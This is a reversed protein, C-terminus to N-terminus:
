GDEKYDFTIAIEDVNGSKATTEVWVWSSSEITNDGLSTVATGSNVNAFALPASLLHNGSADRDKQHRVDFTVSPGSSGRLVAYVTSVTIPKSIHFWTVNENSSPDEMVFPRTSHLLLTNGSTNITKNTLTQTDGAGVASTTLGHVGVATNVHDDLDAHTVAGAGSLNDHIVENTQLTIDYRHTGTSSTIKIEDEPANITRFKLAVGVKGLVLNNGASDGNIATNVEGVSSGTGWDANTWKNTTEDWTLVQNASPSALVDVDTIDRLNFAGDTRTIRM